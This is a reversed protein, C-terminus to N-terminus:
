VITVLEEGMDVPEGEKVRVEHVVGGCEAALGTEIKIDEMIVLLDGKKVTEGASVLVELITGLMPSMLSWKAM